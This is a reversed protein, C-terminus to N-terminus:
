AMLAFSYMGHGGGGYFGNTAPTFDEHPVWCINDSAACQVIASHTVYHWGSTHNWHNLNIEAGNKRLYSVRSAHQSTASTVMYYGAVPCTWYGTADNWCNGRNVDATIVISWRGKYPTGKGSLQGRM